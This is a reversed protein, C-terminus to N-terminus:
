HALTMAVSLRSRMMLAINRWVVVIVGVGVGGGIVDLRGVVIVGGVEVWAAVDVILREVRYGLVWVEGRWRRGEERWM